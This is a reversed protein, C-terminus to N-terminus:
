ISLKWDGLCPRASGEQHFSDIFLTFSFYSPFTFALISEDLIPFWAPRRVLDTGRRGPSRGTDEAVCPGSPMGAPCVANFGGSVARAPIGPARTSRVCTGDGRKVAGPLPQSVECASGGCAKGAEREFVLLNCSLFFSDRAGQRTQNHLKRRLHTGM